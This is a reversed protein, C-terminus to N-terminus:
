NPRRLAREKSRLRLILDVQSDPIPLKDISAEYVSRLSEGLSRTDVPRGAGDQGSMAEVKIASQSM